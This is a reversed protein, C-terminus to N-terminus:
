PPWWSRAQGAEAPATDKNMSETLRSVTVELSAGEGSAPVAAAEVGAATVLVVAAAVLVSGPADAVEALAADDEALALGVGLAADDDALGFALAAFAGEDCTCAEILNHEFGDVQLLEVFM